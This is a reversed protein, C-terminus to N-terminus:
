FPQDAEPSAEDEADNDFLSFGSKKNEGFSFGGFTFEENSSSKNVDGGFTLESNTNKVGDGFSDLHSGKKELGTRLNEANSYNSINEVPDQLVALPSFKSSGIPNVNIKKPSLQFYKKKLEKGNDDGM